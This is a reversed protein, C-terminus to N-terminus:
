ASAQPNGTFGTPWFNSTIVQLEWVICESVRLVLFVPEHDNTVTNSSLKIKSRQNSWFKWFWIEFNWYSIDQLPSVFDFIYCIDTVKSSNSFRGAIASDTSCHLRWEVNPPTACTIHAVALVGGGAQTIYVPPCLVAAEHLIFFAASVWCIAGCTGNTFSLPTPSFLLQASSSSCSDAQYSSNGGERM